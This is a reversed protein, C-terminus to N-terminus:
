LADDPVDLLIVDVVNAAPEAGLGDMFKVPLVVVPKYKGDLLVRPM